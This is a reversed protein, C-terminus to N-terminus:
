GGAFPPLVDLTSGAPIVSEKEHLVLGDLLFTCQLLVQALRLNGPSINDLISNLKGAMASFEAGNAAARAAGYLRVTVSETM